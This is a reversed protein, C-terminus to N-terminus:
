SRQYTALFSKLAAENMKLVGSAKLQGKLNQQYLEWALSRKREVVEEAIQEQQAPLDAEVAPIRSAVRFVIRNGGVALADSSQGVPLTFASPLQSGSGVGDIYDQQSFDKSEKVALGMSQAAKKLDAGKAKAAFQEAKQVALVQSQAALYDQEVVARVEELQPLHEPVVQTVQIIAMGKPVSVGSGVAGERLQFALNHFGESTGLDPVPQNYRFPPTEKIELGNKQAITQFNKPDQQFERELRTTLAQQADSLRERELQQRIQDRVEEFTQLHATQKDFLKIIHFGYTTKILDSIQGPKMSFAATEFEKVTQGRVIWGLDGGNPASSDESNKKALDAFDGGAKLQGLVERAKKEIAVVEEPTKGETKFLIHSVKVRDSVHYEGVHQGYYQKLDADSLKVQARVRDMDILVYRVRRTEPVKYKSPGKQFFAELAAPTIEVAKLYQSPDFLVYEIRAKTNRKIFEERVEAPTVRVGDTIIARMKEQLLSERFQAEFQPVTMGTQQSIFDRYRDLGVFVGDPYLSPIATQLGRQLELDSIGVGLKKAQTWLVRRVIMDDLVIGAMRSVMQPDNGLPSGRLRSQINRQLDNSTIPTGGVEALVNPEMGRDGGPFIPALTVIMGVSVISLFFILLYKKVLERKKKFLRFM